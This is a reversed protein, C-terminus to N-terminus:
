VAKSLVSFVHVEILGGKKFNDDAAPILSWRLFHTRGMLFVPAIKSFVSSFKFTNAQFTSLFVRIPHYRAEHLRKPFMASVPRNLLM